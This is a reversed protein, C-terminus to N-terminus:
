TKNLKYKKSNQAINGLLRREYTKHFTGDFVMVLILRRYKLLQLDIVFFFTPQTKSM